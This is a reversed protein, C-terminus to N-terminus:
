DYYGSHIYVCPVGAQRFMEVNRRDDEFALRAVLGLARLEDVSRHKFRRAAGYDGFDRMILLDWRLRYRGLWALTQPQVRLPRGTLLVIPLGPDLLELLCAVEEILADDGCADFFADWDRRGGEVFHQRTAADSLVGDLDFIM